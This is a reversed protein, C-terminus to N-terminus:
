DIILPLITSIDDKIVFDVRRNTVFDSKTFLVSLQERELPVTYELRDHFMDRGLMLLVDASECATAADTMLKADVREGLLRIDPRVPVKCRNCRPIEKADLLYKVNFEKSCRPCRNIQLSGNLEILNRFRIGDPIGHYNQNIVASLKGQAQLKRLADHAPTAHIKMSLIEERYFRYFKENKANFFGTTLIDEPSFGYKDEVRYHEDNSSLDYGGGEVLMEIGIVAVINKANKIKRKIYQIVKEDTELKM